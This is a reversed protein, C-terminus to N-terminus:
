FGFFQAVVPYVSARSEKHTKGGHTPYDEGFCVKKINNKEVHSGTEVRGHPMKPNPRGNMQLSLLPDLPRLGSGPQSDARATIRHTRSM